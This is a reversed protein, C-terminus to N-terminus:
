IDQIGTDIILQCGKRVSVSEVGFARQIDTESEGSAMEKLGKDSHCYKDDYLICSADSHTDFAIKCM